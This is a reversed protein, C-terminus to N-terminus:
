NASEAALLQELLSMLSARRALERLTALRREGEVRSTTEAVIALLGGVGGSEDRIPSYSVTFYCNELLPVRAGM